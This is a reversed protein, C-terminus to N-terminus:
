CPPLESKVEMGSSPELWVFQGFLFQNEEIHSNPICHQGYFFKAVADENMSHVALVVNLNPIGFSRAAGYRRYAPLEGGVKVPRV